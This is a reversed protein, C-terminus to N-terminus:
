QIRTYTGGAIVISPNNIFNLREGHPPRKKNENRFLVLSGNDAADSAIRHIIKYECLFDLWQMLIKGNQTITLRVHTANEWELVKCIKVGDVTVLLLM